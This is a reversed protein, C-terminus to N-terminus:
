LMCDKWFLYSLHFLWALQSTGKLTSSFMAVLLPLYLPQLPLIRGMHTCVPLESLTHAKYKWYRFVHWQACWSMLHGLGSPSVFSYSKFHKIRLWGSHQTLRHLFQFCSHINTRLFSLQKPAVCTLLPNKSCELPIWCAGISHWANKARPAGQSYPRHPGQRSSSTLCPSGSAVAPFPCWRPLCFPSQKLITPISTSLVMPGSPSSHSSSFVGRAFPFLAKILCQLVIIYSSDGVIVRLSSYFTFSFFGDLTLTKPLSASSYIKFEMWTVIFWLTTELINLPIHTPHHGTLIIKRYILAVTSCSEKIEECPELKSELFTKLTYNKSKCLKYFHSDVKKGMQFHLQSFPWSCNWGLLFFKRFFWTLKGSFVPLTGSRVTNNEWSLLSSIPFHWAQSGPVVM